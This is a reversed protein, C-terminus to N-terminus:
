EDIVFVYSMKMKILLNLVEDYIKGIKVVIINDIFM